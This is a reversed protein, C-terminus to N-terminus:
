MCAHISGRNAPRLFIDISHGLFELSSCDKRIRSSVGHGSCGRM